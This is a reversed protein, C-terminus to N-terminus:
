TQVNPLALYAAHSGTKTAATRRRTCPVVMRTHLLFATEIPEHIVLVESVEADHVFEGEHEVSPSQCFLLNQRRDPTIEVAVERLGEPSVVICTEELVECVGVEQWTQGLMQHGGTLALRGYGEGPLASRIM